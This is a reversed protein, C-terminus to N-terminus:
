EGVNQYEKVSRFKLCTTHNRVDVIPVPYCQKGCPDGVYFLVRGFSQNIVLHSHVVALNMAKCQIFGM